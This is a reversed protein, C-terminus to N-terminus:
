LLIVLMEGKIILLMFCFYVNKLFMNVYIWYGYDCVIYLVNKDSELRYKFSINEKRLFKLVELNGNRVVYLIVNWGEKSKLFMFEYFNKLVFECM